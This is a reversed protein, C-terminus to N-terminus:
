KRNPHWYLGFFNKERNFEIWNLTPIRQTLIIKPLIREVLIREVLILKIRFIKIRRDPVVEAPIWNRTQFFFFFFFSVFNTAILLFLILIALLAIWLFTVSMLLFLCARLTECYNWKISLSSFQYKFCIYNLAWIRPLSEKFIRNRHCFL